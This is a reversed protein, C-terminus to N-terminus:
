IIKQAVADVSLSMWTTPWAKLSHSNNKLFFRVFAKYLSKSSTSASTGDDDSLITDHITQDDITSPDIGKARAFTQLKGIMEAKLDVITVAMPHFENRYDIPRNHRWCIRRTLPVNGM